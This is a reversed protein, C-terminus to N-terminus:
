HPNEGARSHPKVDYWFAVLFSILFFCCKLLLHWAARGLCMSRVMQQICGTHRLQERLVNSNRPADSPANESLFHQVHFQNPPVRAIEFHLVNIQNIQFSNTSWLCFHQNAGQRVTSQARHVRTTEVLILNWDTCFQREWGQSSISTNQKKKKKQKSKTEVILLLFHPISVSQM